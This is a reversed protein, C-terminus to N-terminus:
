NLVYRTVQRSAMQWRENRETRGVIDRTVNQGCRPDSVRFGSNLLNGRFKPWVSNALRRGDTLLAYLKGDDSGVLLRGDPCLTPSSFVFKGTKFKWVVRGQSDFAYVWHNYSGVYVVGDDSVAASSIVWDRTNFSWKERGAPTIAYFTRNMSGIYITGDPGITPSAFVSAGTDYRWKEQGEPTV